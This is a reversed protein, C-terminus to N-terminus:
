SLSLCLVYKWCGQGRFQLMTVTFVVELRAADWRHEGGQSQPALLSQDLMVSLEKRRSQSERGKEKETVKFLARM